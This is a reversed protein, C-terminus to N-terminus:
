VPRCRTVWARTSLDSHILSRVWGDASHDSPDATIKIMATPTRYLRKRSARGGCPAAAIAENSGTDTLRDPTSSACIAAPVRPTSSTVLSYAVPRIRVVSAATGRRSGTKHPLATMTTAPMMATVSGAASATNTAPCDTRLRWCRSTDSPWGPTARATIPLESYRATEPRIPRARPAKSRLVAPPIETSNPKNKASVIRAPKRGPFQDASTLLDRGYVAPRATVATGGAGAVDSAGQAPRPTAHRYAATKSPKAASRVRRPSAFYGGRAGAIARGGPVAPPLAM